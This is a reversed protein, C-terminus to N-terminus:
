SPRWPGSTRATAPKPRGQEVMLPRDPGRGHGFFRGRRTEITEAAPCMGVFAPGSRFENRPNEFLVGGLGQAVEIALPGASEPQQGLVMQFYSALRLRRPADGHNSVTLLYVGPSRAAARLGDTGHGAHRADHIPPRATWASTSRMCGAATDNLPHYTPSYWADGEPEYLYFAEAPVERTVIDPWDPTLRNQQSNVSSTTHLGRNTVATVHGLANSMTHDYPRPTFPTRVHLTRGDRSFDAYPQPTGPPIEGHGLPHHNEEETAPATPHTPLSGWWGARSHEQHPESREVWGVNRGEGALSGPLQLHRTIAEVAQQRDDVLGMLLRVQATGQPPLDLGVLLSGIPDFTPHAATDQPPAFALSQLARSTWLSRARGIFDLRSTLFGEARGDVALLGLAKAHKDWALVAHLGEVYEMQAFLRNYQTHGRDAEPRNLVWELYPVLKLQRRRATRNEVTITWLEM